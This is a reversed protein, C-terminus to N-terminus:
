RVQQYRRLWCRLEAFVNGSQQCLLAHIKKTGMEEHHGQGEDAKDNDYCRKERAEDVATIQRLYADEKRKARNEAWRPQPQEVHSQLRRDDRHHRRQTQNQHQERIRDTEADSLNPAIPTQSEQNQTGPVSRVAAITARM